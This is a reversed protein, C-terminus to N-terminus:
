FSEEDRCARNFSDLIADGGFSNGDSQMVSHIAKISNLMLHLISFMSRLISCICIKGLTNWTNEHEPADEKPAVKAGNIKAPAGGNM